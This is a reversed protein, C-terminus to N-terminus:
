RRGEEAYRGLFTWSSSSASRLSCERRASFSPVNWSLDDRFEEETAPIRALCTASRFVSSVSIVKAALSPFRATTAPSSSANLARTGAPLSRHAGFVLCRSSDLKIIKSRKCRSKDLKISRMCRGPCARHFHLTLASNKDTLMSLHARQTKYLIATPCNCVGPLSAEM